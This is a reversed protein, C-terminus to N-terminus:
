QWLRPCLGSVSKELRTFSPTHPANRLLAAAPRACASVGVRGSQQSPVSSYEPRM